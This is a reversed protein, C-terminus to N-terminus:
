LNSEAHTSPHFARCTTLLYCHHNRSLILLIARALSVCHMNNPSRNLRSAFRTIGETGRRLVGSSSMPLFSPHQTIRPFSYPSRWQRETSLSGDEISAEADRESYSDDRFIDSLQSM